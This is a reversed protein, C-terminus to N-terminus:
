LGLGGDKIILDVNHTALYKQAKQEDKVYVGKFRNDIFSKVENLKESSDSIVLIVKKNKEEEREIEESTMLLNKNIYKLLIKELDDYIVPKSLYDTFGEKIYTERAGMIADATLSIIPINDALHENRIINLTETGSMNPM